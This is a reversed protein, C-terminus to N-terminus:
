YNEEPCDYALHGDRECLACWKDEEIVKGNGKEGNPMHQQENEKGPSYPVAKEGKSYGNSSARQFKTCDLTDHDSSECMECFEGGTAAAGNFGNTTTEAPKASSPARITEARRRMASGSDAATATRESENRAHGSYSTNSNGNTMATAERRLREVEGELDEKERRSDELAAQLREVEGDDKAM